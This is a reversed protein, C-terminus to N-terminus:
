PAVTSGEMILSAAPSEYWVDIDTAEVEEFLNKVLGVGEGAARLAGGPPLGYEEDEPIKEPDILKGITLEWEVGKGRMWSITDYSREVLIRVLESDSRDDSTSMIDGYYREAPYPDVSVRGLWRKSEETILPELSDLGDHAIRFIGGSFRSNGGREERGAAELVIVSADREHAALAAVLAANGAGVVVVDTEVSKLIVGV